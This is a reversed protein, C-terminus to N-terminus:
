SPETPWTVNTWNTYGDGEVWAVTANPNNAPLDRLANRYTSWETQKESTMAAWRDPLVHVDSAILKENRNYRLENQADEGTLTPPPTYAAITGFDGAICRNYIEVGHPEVDDSIATFAVSTEPLHDFNVDVDIMTQALDGWRPNLVTTYTIAM